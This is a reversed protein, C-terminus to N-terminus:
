GADTRDETFTRLIEIVQSQRELPIREWLKTIEAAVTDQQTLGLFRALTPMEAPQIRRKGIKIETVRTAPIALAAAVDVGRVEGSALKELLAEHIEDHTLVPACQSFRFDADIVSM